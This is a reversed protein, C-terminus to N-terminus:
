FYRFFYGYGMHWFIVLLPYVRFSLSIRKCILCCFLSSEGRLGWDKTENQVERSRVDGSDKGGRLFFL